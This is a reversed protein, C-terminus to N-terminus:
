GCNRRILSIKLILASEGFLIESVEFYCRWSMIGFVSFIYLFVRTTIKCKIRTWKSDIIKQNEIINSNLFPRYYNFIFIVTSSIILFIWVPFIGYNENYIKFNDFMGRWYGVVLPSVIFMSIMSDIFNFFKKRLGNEGVKESLETYIKSM